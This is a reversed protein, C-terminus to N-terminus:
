WIHLVEKVLVVALRHQVGADLDVACLVAERNVCRAHRVVAQEAGQMADGLLKHKKTQTQMAVLPLM